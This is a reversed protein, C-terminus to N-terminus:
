LVTWVLQTTPVGNQQGSQFLGFGPTYNYFTLVGASTCQFLGIVSANNAVVFCLGQRNTSPRYQAGLTISFTYITTASSVANSSTIDVTVSKGVRVCRVTAAVTNPGTLNGSYTDEYYHSLNQGVNFNVGGSVIIQGAVGVDSTSAIGTFTPTASPSLDQTMSIILNSGSLSANCGNSNSITTSQLQKSANASVLTSATLGTDTISTSTLAGCTHANTGSNIAGTTMTGVFSSTGSNTISVSSLAGCTHANTGSNIAGTTMTGVFSSTGSNAISVSSLAGCTHSNTGSNIAGTTMTGSFSSTGSNAINTSIIQNFTGANNVKLDTATVGTAQVDNITAVGTVNMDLITALTSVDLGVTTVYGSVQLDFAYIFRWLHSADGLSWNANSNPVIDGSFTAGCQVILQSALMIINRNSRDGAIALSTDFQLWKQNASANWLRFLTDAVNVGAFTPNDTTKVGQNIKSDYDTKFANFSVGGITANGSFTADTGFLTKIYGSRWRTLLAGLDYTDDIAPILSFGPTFGSSVSINQTYITKFEKAASGLDYVNTIDPLMTSKITPTTLSNCIWDTGTHLQQETTFVYGSPTLTVIVEHDTGTLLGPVPPGTPQGILIEGDDLEVTQIEKSSNLILASNALGGLYRSTTTVTLIDTQLDAGTLYEFTGFEENFSSIYSDSM